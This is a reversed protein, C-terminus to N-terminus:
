NRDTRAARGPRRGSRNPQRETEADWLWIVPWNSDRAVAQAQRAYAVFVHVAWRPLDALRVDDLVRWEHEREWHTQSSSVRRRLAPQFYPRDAEPLQEYTSADGYIVPQAGLRELEIRDIILGYPEWDWRGLHPQFARRAVLQELPVGSFSVSRQGGRTLGSRSRLRGSQLIARLTELPSWEPLRGAMWARALLDGIGGSLRTGPAGRVCHVLTRPLSTADYRRDGFCWALRSTLQVLPVTAASGIPDSTDPLGLQDPQCAFPPGARRVASQTSNSRLVLWGVGGRDLWARTAANQRSECRHSRAGSQGVMVSVTGAPFARDALRAQLLADVTGSPRASLARVCHGWLIALRDQLPRMEMAPSAPSFPPSVCILNHGRPWDPTQALTGARVDLRNSLWNAINERPGDAALAVRAVEIVSSALLPEILPALTTGPVHLLVQGDASLIRLAHELLRPWEALRQGANGLRSSVLSTWRQSQSLWRAHMLVLRGGLWAAQLDAPLHPLGTRLTWGRELLCEIGGLLRRHAPEQPARSGAASQLAFRLEELLCSSQEPECRRLSKAVAQELLGRM